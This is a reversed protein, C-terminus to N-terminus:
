GEIQYCFQNSYKRNDKQENCFQIWRKPKIRQKTVVNFESNGKIRCNSAFNSEYKKNQGKTRYLMSSSKTKEKILQNPWLNSSGFSKLYILARTLNNSINPNKSSLVTYYFSSLLNTILQLMCSPNDELGPTHHDSTQRQKM